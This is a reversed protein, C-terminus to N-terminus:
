CGQIWGKDTIHGQPLQEVHQAEAKDETHTSPLM